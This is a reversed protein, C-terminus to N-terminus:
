PTLHMSQVIPMVETVLDDFDTKDSTEILVVFTASDIDLFILRSRGPGAITWPPSALLTAMPLSGGGSCTGTWTPALSVDIATGQDGGISIPVPRTTDLAPQARFWGIVDQVGHGVTHDGTGNCAADQVAPRPDEFVEIWQGSAADTETGPANLTYTM